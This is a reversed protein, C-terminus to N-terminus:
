FGAAEIERSVVLVEETRISQADNAYDWKADTSFGSYFHLFSQLYIVPRAEKGKGPTGNVADSNVGYWRSTSSEVEFVVTDCERAEACGRSEFASREDAQAGSLNERRREKGGRLSISLAPGQYFLPLKVIRGPRSQHRASM